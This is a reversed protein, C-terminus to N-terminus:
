DLLLLGGWFNYCPAALRNPSALGFLLMHLLM